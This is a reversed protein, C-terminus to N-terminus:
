TFIGKIGRESAVAALNGALAVFDELKGCAIFCQLLDNSKDNAVQNIISFAAKIYKWDNFRAERLVQLLEIILYPVYTSRFQKFMDVREADSCNSIQLTFWNSIFDQVTALTKEISKSVDASKWAREPVIGWGGTFSKWQEMLNLCEVLPVYNLLEEKDVELVPSPSYDDNVSKKQVEFDYDKILKKFNREEAFAVISGLRGTFLFRRLVAISAHIADEYMKNEYFWGVSTYMTSDKPHVSLVVSTLPGDSTYFPETETMVREVTRKLVNNIRQEYEGGLDETMSTSDTDNESSTMVGLNKCIELQRAREASDTIQSLFISYCERLDKEDPIFALYVPVLDHRSLTSVYRTIIKTTTNTDDNINLMVGIVALHALVRLVQSDEFIEPRNATVTNLLFIDLQNIMISGMIVRLPDQSERETAPANLLTNLIENVSDHQPTPFSVSLLLQTEDLPLISEFFSRIHHTFLQNVYLLLCEEWNSKAERINEIQSGGCLFSYILRENRSVSREQALKSVTQFWLYKHKVGSPEDVTDEDMRDTADYDMVPDVYDQTAGILILALTFNGTESAFDIAAQVDGKVLLRYIKLFNEDDVKKDEPAIPQQSRIPADADLYDLHSSQHKDSALQNLENNEIAIKTHTWKSNQLADTYPDIDQSNYQLWQAILLLEKVKPNQDLYYDRKVSASCFDFPKNTVPSGSLRFSYLVHVLHWLKAEMDWREFNERSYSADHENEDLDQGVALARQAAASTFNQIVEFPDVLGGSLQYNELIKSFQETESVLLQSSEATTENMTISDTFRFITFM